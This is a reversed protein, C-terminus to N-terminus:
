DVVFIHLLDDRCNILIEKYSMRVYAISTFINVCTIACNEMLIKLMENGGVAGYLIKQRSM